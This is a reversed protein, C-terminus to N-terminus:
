FGTPVGLPSITSTGYQQYPKTTVTMGPVGYGYPNANYPNAYYPSGYTGGPLYGQYGPAVGYGYGMPYGHGYGYYPNNYYGNNPPYLTNGSNKNLYHNGAVAGAMMALGALGQGIGALKSPGQGQPQRTTLPEDRFFPDNDFDTGSNWFHQKKPKGGPQVTPQNYGANGYPQNYRSAMQPSVVTPVQPAKASAKASSQAAPITSAASPATQKMQATLDAHAKAAEAPFLTALQGLLEGADQYKQEGFLVSQLHNLRGILSSGAKPKLTLQKEVSAIFPEAPKLQAELKAQEAISPDPEAKAAVPKSVTETLPKLSNDVLPKAQWDVQESFVPSAGQILLGLILSFVAYQKHSQFLAM